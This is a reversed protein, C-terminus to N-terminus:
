RVNGKWDTPYWKNFINRKLKDRIIESPTFGLKNMWICNEYYNKNKFDLILSNIESKPSSIDLEFVKMLNFDFIKLLYKERLIVEFILLLRFDNSFVVFDINSDSISINHSFAKSNYYLLNYDGTLIAIKTGWNGNNIEVPHKILYRINGINDYPNINVFGDMLYIKKFVQNSDKM